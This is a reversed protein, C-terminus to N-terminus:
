KVPKSLDPLDVWHARITERISSSPLDTFAIFNGPLGSAEIQGSGTMNIGACVSCGLDAFEDVSVELRFSVYVVVSNM